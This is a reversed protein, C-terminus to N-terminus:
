RLTGSRLDLPWASADNDVAIIRAKLQHASQAAAAHESLDRACEAWSFELAKARAEAPAIDLASLAAAGLDESLRGGVGDGLVDLPGTVPYAAVPLGSALAELLVIGFTDTRSPFVFVDASAYVDALAEGTM